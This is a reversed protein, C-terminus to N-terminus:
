GHSRSKPEWGREGERYKPQKVKLWALPRGPVYRSEPNKAVLGEFGRAVVEEWAKLGDRALRRVAFIMGHSRLLRELLRRRGKLPEQRLDRGDLELLDFVMYVPLTAPEDTPRGRLWEFRSIFARDYVAVEGDFIFAKPKLGRLAKVLESFRTTLDHGQRSVLRVGGEGKIAVMRWGDVKEEYIWGARHFPRAVLTPHMLAVIPRSSSAM